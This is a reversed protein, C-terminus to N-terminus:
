PKEMWEFSYSFVWTQTAPMAVVTRLALGDGAQLVTPVKPEYWWDLGHTGGVVLPLRFEAVRTGFVVSTVTLASALDQISTMDTASDSGEDQMNAVRATGGTPTAATFRQLGMSGAVGAAVGMTTVTIRVHAKRVFARRTSTPDFRMAFLPTDAALSAAVIGAPGGGVTYYGGASPHSPIGDVDVPNGDAGYLIVRAAKPTTDVDQETGSTGGVIKIAM